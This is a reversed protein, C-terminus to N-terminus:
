FILEMGATFSELQVDESHTYERYGAHTSFGPSFFYKIRIDPAWSSLDSSDEYYRCGLRVLTQSGIRQYLYAKYEDFSRDDIYEYHQYECRLSTWDEVLWVTSFLMAQWPEPGGQDSESVSLQTGIRFSKVPSWSLYESIQHESNGAGDQLMLRYNAFSYIKGIYGGIGAHFYDRDASGATRFRKLKASVRQTETVPISLFWGFFDVDLGQENEWTEYSAGFSLKDKRFVRAEGAYMRSPYAKYAPDIDIIDDSDETFQTELRLRFAVDKGAISNEIPVGSVSVEESEQAYLSWAGLLCVVMIFRYLSKRTFMISRHERPEGFQRGM